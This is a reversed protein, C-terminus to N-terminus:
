SDGFTGQIKWVTAQHDEFSGGLELGAKSAALKLGANVGFDDEYRLILCFNKLGHELRGKVIQQWTPEHSYWVIGKPMRPSKKPNLSATFLLHTSAKSTVAAKAVVSANQQPLPLSLNAAFDKGWGYQYEVSI